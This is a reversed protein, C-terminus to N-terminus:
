KEEKKPLYYDYPCLRSHRTAPLNIERDYSFRLGKQKGKIAKSAKSGKKLNKNVNEQWTDNNKHQFSNGHFYMKRM